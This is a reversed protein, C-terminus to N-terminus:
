RRIQYQISQRATVVVPTAMTAAVMGMVEVEVVVVVTM